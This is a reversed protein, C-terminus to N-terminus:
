NKTIKKFKKRERKISEDVIIISIKQKEVVVVVIQSNIDISVITNISFSSTIFVDISKFVSKERRKTISKNILKKKNKQDTTTTRIKKDIELLRRFIVIIKM